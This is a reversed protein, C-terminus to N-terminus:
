GPTQSTLSVGYRPQHGGEQTVDPHRPSMPVRGRRRGLRGELSPGAGCHPFHTRKGPPSPM